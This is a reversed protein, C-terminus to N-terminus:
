AVEYLKDQADDYLDKKAGMIEAPSYRNIILINTNANATKARTKITPASERRSSLFFVKIVVNIIVFNLKKQAAAM